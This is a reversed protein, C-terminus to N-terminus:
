KLRARVSIIGPPANPESLPQNDIVLWNNLAIKRIESACGLDCTEAFRDAIVDSLELQVITLGSLDSGLFPHPFLAIDSEKYDLTIEVEEQTVTSNGSFFRKASASDKLATPLLLGDYKRIFRYPRGNRFYQPTIDTPGHYAYPPDTAFSSHVINGLGNIALYAFFRRRYPPSAQVYREERFCSGSYGRAVLGIVGAALDGNSFGLGNGTGSDGGSLTWWSYTGGTLTVSFPTDPSFATSGSATTTKLKGQAVVSAALKAETVALNTIGAEPVTNGASYVRNAGDYVGSFGQVTNAGQDSGGVTYIGNGVYLRTALTGAIVTQIALTGDESAATPDVISAQIQAYTDTGAGSDRGKFPIAGLVDNAAPSASNRDLSFIPGATAGADTSSPQTDFIARFGNAAAIVFVLVSSGPQVTYNAASGNITDAGTARGLTIANTSDTNVIWCYWGAALTAADSLSLTVGAGSVQIIQNYHSAGLTTSTTLATPGVNFHTTLATNISELATKVPDNLKTKITSWKVKNAESVTGDDDPPTANYGSVTITSYKTGM